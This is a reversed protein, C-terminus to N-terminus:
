RDGCGHAIAADIETRAWGGEPGISLTARTPAPKERWTLSSPVINAQAPEVLIVHREREAGALLEELSLVPRIDPLVAGGSQKTAAVAMRHWRATGDAGRAATKPVDTHVTLLPQIVQVGLMTADRVVADFARGKLLAQALTLVLGSERM